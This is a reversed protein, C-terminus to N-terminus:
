RRKAVQHAGAGTGCGMEVIHVRGDKKAIFNKLTNNAYLGCPSAALASRIM